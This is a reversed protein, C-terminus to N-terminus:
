QSEEIEIARRRALRRSARKLAARTYLSRPITPRQVLNSQILHRSITRLACWRKRKNYAYATGGYLFALCGSAIAKSPQRGKPLSGDSRRCHAAYQLYAMRVLLVRERQDVNLAAVKKRLLYQGVKFPESFWRPINFSRHNTDRMRFVRQAELVAPLRTGGRKSRRSKRGDSPQWNSPKARPLM